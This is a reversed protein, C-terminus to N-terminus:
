KVKALNVYKMLLDIVENDAEWDIVGVIKAVEQGLHNIIVTTPLTIGGFKSFLMNRKDTYIELNQIKKKQFFEEVINAGKYDESIAIIEVPEKKLRKKLKDLGNIKNVCFGCWTAWFHILVVKNEFRELNNEKGEKDFYITEFLVDRPKQNEQITYKVDAFSSSKTFLMLIFIVTIIYFRSNDFSYIM